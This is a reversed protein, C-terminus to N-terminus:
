CFFGSWIQLDRSHSLWVSPGCAVSMITQTQFGGRAEGETWMVCLVLCKASEEEGCGRRHVEWLTLHLGARVVFSSIQERSIGSGALHSPWTEPAPPLLCDSSVQSSWLVKCCGAASKELFVTELLNMFQMLGTCLSDGYFLRQHQQHPCTFANWFPLCFWLDVLPIYSSPLWMSISLWTHLIFSCLVSFYLLETPFAIPTVASWLSFMFRYYGASTFFAFM